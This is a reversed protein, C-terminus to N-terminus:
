AGQPPTGGPPSVFTGAALAVALPSRLIHPGLWLPEFGCDLAAHEEAPTLGGEPGILVCVADSGALAPRTSRPTTPTAVYRRGPAAPLAERLPVLDDFGALEPGRARGSQRLAARVTRQTRGLGPQQAACRDSQCLTLSTVGTVCAFEVAELVAPPDPAALLIHVERASRSEPVPELVRVRASRGSPDVVTARAVFGAGDLVHVEEGAKARRVRALYHSEQADLEVEGAAPSPIFVRITM